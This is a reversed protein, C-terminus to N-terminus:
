FSFGQKRGHRLQLKFITSCYLLASVWGIRSGIYCFQATGLSMTDKSEIAQHGQMAILTRTCYLPSSRGSMISHVRYTVVMPSGSLIGYLPKTKQM